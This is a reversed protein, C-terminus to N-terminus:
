RKGGQAQKKAAREGAEARDERWCISCLERGDSMALQVTRDELERGCGNSCKM